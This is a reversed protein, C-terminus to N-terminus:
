NTSAAAPVIPLKIAVIAIKGDKSATGTWRGLADKELSSVNIYGQRVLHQRAQLEASTATLHARVAPAAEPTAATDAAFAPAAILATAAIMVIRIM